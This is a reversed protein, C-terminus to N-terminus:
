CVVNMTLRNKKLLLEKKKFDAVETSTSLYIMMDHNSIM